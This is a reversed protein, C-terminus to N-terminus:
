KIQNNVKDSYNDKWREDTQKTQVKNVEVVRFYMKIHVKEEPHSGNVTISTDEEADQVITDASNIACSICLDYGEAHQMAEEDCHFIKKGTVQKDCEDCIIATAKMIKCAQKVTILHLKNLCVCKVDLTKLQQKSLNACTSIVNEEDIVDYCFDTLYQPMIELRVATTNQEDLNLSIFICLM